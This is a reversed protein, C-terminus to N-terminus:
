RATLRRSLDAGARNRGSALKSCHAPHRSGSNASPVDVSRAPMSAPLLIVRRLRWIRTSVSPKKFEGIQGLRHAGQDIRLSSATLVDRRPQPLKCARAGTAEDQRALLRGSTRRRVGQDVRAATSYWRWETAIRFIPPISGSPYRFASRDVGQSDLALWLIM